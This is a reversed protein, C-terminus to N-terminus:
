EGGLPPSSTVPSWRLEAYRSLRAAKAEYDTVDPAISLLGTDVWAQRICLTRLCINRAGVLDAHLTYQCVECCFLLGAKPRNRKSTHGCRPCAQSTYDADVKICLSGVLTAKYDLLAQLEAFAWQSALRNAKKAKASVPVIQTGRRRHTRRRTRERIHTLDELGIFAHPYTQVIRKSICHNTNLKLRRERQALAIRRRTASRTGKQQLRKQVRASHDAQQRSEKGSYFQTSGTTTTVTALYRSGVDVGLVEDVERPVPAHRTITFCVLLYFRKRSQGYWLKAGGIDAGQQILAVHKAYGQYGVHIRGSLTLLSVQQGSRLSYDRGYVYSLTPSIYHPPQDLGRFRKKTYGRWRRGPYLGQNGLVFRRETSKSIVQETSM